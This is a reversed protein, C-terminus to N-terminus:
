GRGRARRAPAPRGRRPATRSPRPRRGARVLEALRDAGGRALEDREGVLLRRRPELGLVHEVLARGRVQQREQALLLGRGARNRGVARDHDLAEAVLDAVPPEADERREAAAHVRRPRQREARPQALREAELRLRDPRVVPDRDVQGVGVRRRRDVLHQELGLLDLLEDRLLEAVRREEARAEALVRAARQQDRAAPGALARREPLLAQLRLRQQLDRAAVRRERDHELGVALAQLVDEVQGRQLPQQLAQARPLDVEDVDLGGRGRRVRGRQEEVVDGVVHVLVVRRGGLPARLRQREVAVQQALQEPLLLQAVQDVRAREVLDLVLQAAVGRM